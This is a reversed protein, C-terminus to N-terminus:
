VTLSKSGQTPCSRPCGYINDELAKAALSQSSKRPGGRSSTWSSLLAAPHGFHLREQLPHGNTKDEETRLLYKSHKRKM